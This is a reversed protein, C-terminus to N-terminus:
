LGPFFSFYYMTSYLILHALHITLVTLHEPTKFQPSSKHFPNVLFPIIWPIHLNQISLSSSSLSCTIKLMLLSVSGNQLSTQVSCKNTSCLLPEEHLYAQLAPCTNYPPLELPRVPMQRGKWLAPDLFSSAGSASGSRVSFFCALCSHSFCVTQSSPSVSSEKELLRLCCTLRSGSIVFTSIQLVSTLMFVSDPFNLSLLTQSIDTSASCNKSM